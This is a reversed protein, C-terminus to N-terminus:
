FLLIISKIIQILIDISGETMQNRLVYFSQYLLVADNGILPGYLLILSSLAEEKLSSQTQISFTQTNM